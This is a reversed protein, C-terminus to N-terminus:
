LRNPHILLNILQVPLHIKSKTLPMPLATSNPSTKGFNISIRDETNLTLPPNLTQPKPNHCGVDRNTATESSLMPLAEGRVGPRVHPVRGTEPLTNFGFIFQLDRPKARSSLFPLTTRLFSRDSPSEEISESM